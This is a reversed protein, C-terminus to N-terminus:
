KRKLVGYKFREIQKLREEAQAKKDYIGMSRGSKHAIVEWGRSTKKIM